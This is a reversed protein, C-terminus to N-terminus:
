ARAGFMADIVPRADPPGSIALEIRDARRILDFHLFPCCDAEAAMLARLEAEIAASPAFLVSVGDVRKVVGLSHEGVRELWRGRATREAAALSCVIPTDPLNESLSPDTMRYAHM